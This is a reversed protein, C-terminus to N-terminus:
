DGEVPIARILELRRRAREAARTGEWRSLFQDFKTILSAKSKATWRTREQVAILATLAKTAQLARRM